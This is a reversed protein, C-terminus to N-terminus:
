DIEAQKQGKKKNNRVRKKGGATEAGQFDNDDINAEVM